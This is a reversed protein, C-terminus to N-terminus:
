SLGHPIAKLVATMLDSLVAPRKEEPVRTLLGGIIKLNGTIWDPLDYEAEIPADLAAMVRVLVDTQPITKGGEINIVTGRGVGAAEALDGQSMGREARLGRVREAYAVREQETLKVSSDSEQVSKHRTM